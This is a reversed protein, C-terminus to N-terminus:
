FALVLMLVIHIVILILAMPAQAKIVTWKNRAELVSAPVINFNAAMPTMLTGCYGCTMGLVGVIAPDGGQMIVFPVGVGTTIVAFAAFANGMIMTFIVMGLCYLIVGTLVGPNPFGMSIIGSIVDGVGAATFVSGLAGLLQPLLCATGVQMLLRSTNERTENINPKCLAVAVGLAVLCAGGIMVAGNLSAGDVKVFALIAAIAGILVAPIFILSGISKNAEVREQKTTEKFTGAVVVKAAALVGMVCLLAGTVPYPIKNGLIFIVGLLFWFVFTGLRKVVNKHKLGRFAADVSVLGCLAYIIEPAVNLLFNSM